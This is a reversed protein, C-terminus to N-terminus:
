HKEARHSRRAGSRPVRNGASLAGKQSVFLPAVNPDSEEGQPRVALWGDAKKRADHNLPAQRAKRGKGLVRVQGSREHIEIDALRLAAVESLRLGTNLM